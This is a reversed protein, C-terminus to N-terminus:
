KGILLKVSVVLLFGAFIRRLVLQPIIETLQVGFYVGLVAGTAMLLGYNWNVHQLTHHKITGLLSTLTIFALSTGVADTMDFGFGLLLMPVVIIGGGIGLLGSLFGASAGALLLYIYSM